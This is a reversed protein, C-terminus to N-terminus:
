ASPSGSWMRLVIAAPKDAAVPLPAAAVIRRCWVVGVPITLRGLSDRATSRTTRLSPAGPRTSEAHLRAGSESTSARAAGAPTQRDASKM